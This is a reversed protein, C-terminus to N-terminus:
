ISPWLGSQLLDPFIKERLVQSVTFWDDTSDFWVLEALEAAPQPEGTIEAQYLTVRVIRSEDGAAPAEYVGAFTFDSYRVGTIEEALERRLCDLDFEGPDRKGGPLILLSTGSKKRCLLIKGNRAALLGVKDIM